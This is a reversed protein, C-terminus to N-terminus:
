PKSNPKLTGARKSNAKSEKLFDLNNKILSWRQQNKSIDLHCNTLSCGICQEFFTKKIKKIFVRHIPKLFIYINFKKEPIQFPNTLLCGTSIWFSLTNAKKCFFIKSHQFPNMLLCWTYPNLFLYFYIFLIQKVFNKKQFTSIPNNVFVKHIPKIKKM